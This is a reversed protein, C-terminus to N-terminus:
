RCPQSGEAKASPLLYEAGVAMTMASLLTVVTLMLTVFRLRWYM